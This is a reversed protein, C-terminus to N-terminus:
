IDHPDVQDGAVEVTLAIRRWTRNSMRQLLGKDEGIENLITKVVTILQQQNEPQCHIVRKKLIGWLANDPTTLDPSRPPWPVPGHKGIWRNPFHNNLFDRTRIATHAPAGDQQFISNTIRRRRLEPLFQNELMNLYSDATIRGECIFPGILCNANMACWVMIQPPYQKIQEYYHPNEKAWVITRSNGDGYVSCEDSFFTKNQSHKDPFADLIAQCQVVRNEKDEPSLYQVAIPRFPKLKLDKKLVNHMTSKTMDLEVARRRISVSPSQEVSQMVELSTREKPRGHIPKDNISGTTFLKEEWEKIRDGRPPDGDFRESFKTRILQMDYKNKNSEHWWTAALIRAEITYPSQDRQDGAANVQM